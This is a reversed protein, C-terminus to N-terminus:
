NFIGYFCKCCISLYMVAIDPGDLSHSSSDDDVFCYNDDAVTVISLNGALVFSGIINAVAQGIESSSCSSPLCLSLSPFAYTMADAKSSTKPNIVRSSGFLVATLSQIMAVISNVQEEPSPIIDTIETPELPSPKLFITCYQGTFNSARISLCEDFLGDAHYNGSGFLGIPIKGTSEKM